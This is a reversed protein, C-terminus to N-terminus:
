YRFEQSNLALFILVGSAAVPRGEDRSRIRVSINNGTKLTWVIIHLLNLVVDVCTVLVNDTM